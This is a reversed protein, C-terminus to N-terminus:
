TKTQILSKQYQSVKRDLRVGHLKPPIVQLPLFYDNVWELPFPPQHPFILYKKVREFPSIFYFQGDM